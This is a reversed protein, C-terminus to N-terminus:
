VFLNPIKQLYIYSIQFCQQPIILVMLQQVYMCYPHVSHQLFHLHGASCTFACLSPCLAWRMEYCKRRNSISPLSRLHGKNGLLFGPRLFGVHKQGCQLTTGAVYRQRVFVGMQYGRTVPLIKIMGLKKLPITNNQRDNLNRPGAGMNCQWMHTYTYSQNDQLGIHIFAILKM